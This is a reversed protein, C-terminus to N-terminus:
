VVPQKLDVNSMMSYSRLRMRFYGADGWASSWSNAYVIVSNNLDRTDLELAVAEVEHGGALGSTPWNPNSDIFGARDPEFFAEYFPMGQLVPGWQLLQCFGHPTAAWNYAKITGRNKLVQCAALGSTGSDTPPYTGAYPDVKTAASYLAVAFQELATPDMVSNLAHRGVVDYFPQTGLVGTGANGVCSGLQGQDLIPIVRPWQQSMLPKAIAGVRNEVMYSLSRGDLWLNRGLRMGDHVTEDFKRYLTGNDILPM